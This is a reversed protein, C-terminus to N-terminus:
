ITSGFQTRPQSTNFRRSAPGMIKLIDDPITRYQHLVTPLFRSKPEFLHLFLVSLCDLYLVWSSDEMTILWNAESCCGRLTMITRDDASPVMYGDDALYGVYMWWNVFCFVLYRQLFLKPYPEKSSLHQLVKNMKM